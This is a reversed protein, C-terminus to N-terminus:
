KDLQRHGRETLVRHLEDVAPEIAVVSDPSERSQRELLAAQRLELVALAAREKCGSEGRQTSAHVIQIQSYIDALGADIETQINTIIIM